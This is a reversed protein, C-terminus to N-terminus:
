HGVSPHEQPGCETNLGGGADTLASFNHQCVVLLFFLFFFLFFIVATTCVDFKGPRLGASGSGGERGRTEGGATVRAVKLVAVSLPPTTPPNPPPTDAVAECRRWMRDRWVPSRWRLAVRRSTNAFGPPFSSHPPSTTAKEALPHRGNQPNCSFTVSSEFTPMPVNANTTELLLLNNGGGLHRWFEPYKNAAPQRTKGLHKQKKEQTM